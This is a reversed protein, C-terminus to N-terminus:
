DAAHVVIGAVLLIAGLLAGFEADILPFESAPVFLVGILIAIALVAGAATLGWGVSEMSLRGSRNSRLSRPRWSAVRALAHSFPMKSVVEGGPVERSDGVRRPPNRLTRASM